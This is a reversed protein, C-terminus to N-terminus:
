TLLNQFVLEGGARLTGHNWCGYGKLEVVHGIIYSMSQDM